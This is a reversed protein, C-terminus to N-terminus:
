DKKMSVNAGHPIIKGEWYPMGDIMEILRTKSGPAPKASKPLYNSLKDMTPIYEELIALNHWENQDNKRNYLERSGDAYQIFRWEETVIVHNDPGHTCIAPSERRYGIDTLLPILSQGDLGDKNPLGAFAILTPYLDLLEVPADNLKGKEPIGPGSFIFPVRTSEHWLSNKGTIGKTGLHYGHDSFLVVLTNETLGEKELTDLLRGVLMDAFSVSALYARVKPKWQHNMELWALRPEPLNWHLYWSFPPIDERDKDKTEPLLLEEEPYLDFWKQSAYLPVHPHRIGVSLFFPKNEPRNELQEIAWDTVKRDDQLSDTEPYVGWDVLPHGTNKVFPEEPRPFFGGHFGWVSFETGNRREEKPPFADHFIKGTAMTEYGNKEFYQPLTVLDKYGELDRFWPGLAYIGTTTPRLGTLISSRSPNCLPAQVHANTFAIGSAALRDINPTQVMLHGGLYGVWDNLDDIAILLINPKENQASVHRVPLNLFIASLIFLRAFLKNLLQFTKM